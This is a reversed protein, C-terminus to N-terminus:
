QYEPLAAFQADTMLEYRIALQIQTDHLLPGALDEIASAVDAAKVILTEDDITVYAALVMNAPPITGRPYFRVAKGEGVIALAADIDAQSEPCPVAVAEGVTTKMLARTADLFAPHVMGVSMGTRPSGLLIGGQGATNDNEQTTM